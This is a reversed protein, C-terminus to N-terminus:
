GFGGIGIVKGGGHDYRGGGVLDIPSEITRGLVGDANKPSINARKVGSGILNSNNFAAESRSPSAQGIAGLPSASSPNHLSAGLDKLGFPGQGASSSFFSSGLGPPMGGLGGMADGGFSGLGALLRQERERRERIEVERRGRNLEELVTMKKRSEDRLELQLERHEDELGRFLEMLQDHELALEVRRQRVSEGARGGEAAEGAAHASAAKAKAHAAVKQERLEKRREVDRRAGDILKGQEKIQAKLREVEAKLVERRGELEKKRGEGDREVREREEEVRAIEERLVEVQGTLKALEEKLAEVRRKGAVVDKEMRMRRADVQKRSDELGKLRTRLAARAPDARKREERLQELEDKLVREERDFLDTAQARQQVVTEDGLALEEL